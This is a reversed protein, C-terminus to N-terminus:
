KQQASKQTENFQEDLLFDHERKKQQAIKSLEQLETFRNFEDQQFRYEEQELRHKERTEHELFLEQQAKRQADSM